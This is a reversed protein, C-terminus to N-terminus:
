LGLRAGGSYVTMRPPRVFGVLTMGVETALEVALSSPASVAALTPIGAMMAKQTLEFSARGSVMLVCGALPLRDQRAAWGIVKDVANHRGVDERLCVLDGAATFLAAAHLGGTRTFTDQAARMIAPLRYLTAPDITLNDDGRLPPVAAHVADITAKGCLGCSSSAFVHRTLRGLDFPVDPALVVNVLNGDENRLCPEIRLVDASCRLLGEALLFGAALEADHGPTRMTVSVAHGRVRIELPEETALVDTTVRPIEGDYRVIGVADADDEAELFTDATASSRVM